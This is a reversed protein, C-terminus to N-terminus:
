LQRGRAVIMWYGANGYRDTKTVGPYCEVVGPIYYPTRIHGVRTAPQSMLLYKWNPKSPMDGSVAATQAGCGKAAPCRKKNVAKWYDPNARGNKKEPVGRCPPIWCVRPNDCSAPNCDVRVGNHMINRLSSDLVAKRYPKVWSKAALGSHYDCAEAM